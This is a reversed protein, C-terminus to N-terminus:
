ARGLRDLLSCDKKIKEVERRTFEQIEARFPDMVAPANHVALLQGSFVAVFCAAGLVLPVQNRVWIKVPTVHPHTRPGEEFRKLIWRASVFVPFAWCIVVVLYFMLWYM